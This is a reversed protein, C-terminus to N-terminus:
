LEFSSTTEFCANIEQDSMVAVQSRIAKAFALRAKAHSEEEDKALVVVHFNERFRCVVEFSKM